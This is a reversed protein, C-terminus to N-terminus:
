RVQEALQAITGMLDYKTLIEYHGNGMDVFV